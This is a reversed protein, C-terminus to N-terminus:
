TTWIDTNISTTSCNNFGLISKSADFGNNYLASTCNLISTTVANFTPSSNLTVYNALSTITQYTAAASAQSLYTTSATAQTLYTSAATTITLYTSSASAITLYNAMDTILQYTSAATTILLYSNAASLTLYNNMNAITQYTSAAVSSTLYLSMNSITQYTTAALSSTLFPTLSAISAYLTDMMGKNIISNANITTSTPLSSTPFNSNFANLGTFSNTGSITPVVGSSSTSYTADAYAKTILDTANSPTISSRPLYNNYTNIGSFTNNQSNFNAVASSVASDVYAKNTVSYNITPTTTTTPNSIPMYTSNALSTTLYNQNKVFATTAVCTSNNNVDPTFTTVSSYGELVLYPASLVLKGESSITYPLSANTIPYYFGHQYFYPLLGATADDDTNNADIYMLGRSTLKLVSAGNVAGGVDVGEIKSVGEYGNKLFNVVNSFTNVGTFNNNNNANVSTTYLIDNLYLNTGAHGLRIINGSIDVNGIVKSVILNGSVTVDRDFNAAAQSSGDEMDKNNFAGYVTTSKFRNYTYNSM